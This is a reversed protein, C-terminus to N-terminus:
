EVPPAAVPPPPFPNMATPVFAPPIAVPKAPAVPTAQTAPEDEVAVLDTAQALVTDVNEDAIEFEDGPRATYESREGPLQFVVTSEGANRFKKM